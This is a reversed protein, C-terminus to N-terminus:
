ASAELRGSDRLFETIKEQRKRLRDALLPPLPPRADLRCEIRDLERHWAATNAPTLAVNRCALPQCGGHEPMDEARGRKAKECLANTSDHICTIYDGPYVAPDRRKMIRELRREDLVVTGQFQSREGFEDLRREAEDAAPGALDRHEHGEVMGILGQGRALAQESEVEARFGSSSTGAYGEFMQISHHRYQLAGAVVGGPHRAIFWALTRRFLSTKLALVSGNVKPISDPRETATCYNNIWKMYDNLQQNTSSTCLASRVVTKKSGPGHPLGNFLYDAEPPQLQELIKIAQAVPKGVVWTAMVGASEDEGKFALSTVKWRYPNGDADCKVHLCDRRLHKVESDRMGSLFAIIVYAAAMLQRSLVALSQPTTHHCEIDTIWPQGDLRGRIPIDMGASYTTGVHAAAEEIQSTHLSVQRSKARIKRAIQTVNPHGLFGPLPRNAEIHEALFGEVLAAVEAPPRRPMTDSRGSRRREHWQRSGELIDPAFDNIFRLSWVVLPGLVSEPLRSTANESRSGSSHPSSWDDLHLPDFALADPGLATRWRWLLRVFSRATVGRTSGASLVVILHRLYAQLDPGTILGLHLLDPHHSWRKDLWKTFRVFEGFYTRITVIELRDEGDPLPGSLLEYFLRKGAPRFREPVRPFNLILARDHAMLQASDMRWVPDSYRSTDELRLGSGLQRGHLVFPDAAHEPLASPLVATATPTM